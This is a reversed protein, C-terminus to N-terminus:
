FQFSESFGWVCIVLAHGEAQQAPSRKKSGLDNKIFHQAMINGPEGYLASVEIRCGSGTIRRLM